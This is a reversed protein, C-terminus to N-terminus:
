VTIQAVSDVSRVSIIFLFYLLLEDFNFGLKESTEIFNLSKINLGM